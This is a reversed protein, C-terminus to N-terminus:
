HRAQQSSNRTDNIFQILKPGVQQAIFQDGQDNPHVGDSRLMANTFGAARSCDAIAIPSQATTHTQAWGPIGTNVAEITADSWSTPILKDIIVKVNPNAARLANLILTYSDLISQANRKGINVDNTGLMFQVIDPKTNQVWGAINNRAVDYAQYGSHGEHHPDFGAPSTCMLDTMSGVFQVSSTLGASALQNWVLPRWCTIETISDGLLVPGPLEGLPACTLM